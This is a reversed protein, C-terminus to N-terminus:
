EVALMKWFCHFSQPLLLILIWTTSVYYKPEGGDIRERRFLLLLRKIFESIDTHHDPDLDLDELKPAAGFLITYGESLGLNRDSFFIKRNAEGAMGIM